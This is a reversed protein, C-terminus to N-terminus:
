VCKRLKAVFAITRWPLSGYRPATDMDADIFKAAEPKFDASTPASM